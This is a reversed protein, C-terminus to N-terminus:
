GQAAGVPAAPAPEVEMVPLINPLVNRIGGLDFAIQVADFTTLSKAFVAARQNRFVDHWLYFLLKDRVQEKAIVGADAELYWPGVRKDENRVVTLVAANIGHVLDLWRVTRADNPNAVTTNQLVEEGATIAVSRWHWRRKFAADMPYLAQDSTNMTAFVWLNAPLFVESDTQDVLGQDVLYRGLAANVRIGYQSRGVENRDLLQFVDGFIAACDGRNIEEIVLAVSEDTQKHAAVLARTFVGPEFDYYVVPREINPEGSHATIKKAPDKGSVPKYVGVFDGHSYEPHFVTRLVAAFGETERQVLHSKGVGPPGFYIINKAVEDDGAPAEHEGALAGAAGAAPMAPRAREVVRLGPYWAKYSEVMPSPAWVMLVLAVFVGRGDHRLVLMSELAQALAGAGVQSDVDRVVFRTVFDDGGNRAHVAADASLVLVGHQAHGSTEFGAHKKPTLIQRIRTQREAPDNNLAGSGRLGEGAFLRELSRWKTGAKAKARIAAMVASEFEAKNM